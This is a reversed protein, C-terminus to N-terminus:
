KWTGNRGRPSQDPQGIGPFAGDANGLRLPLDIGRDFWGRVDFSNIQRPDMAVDGM